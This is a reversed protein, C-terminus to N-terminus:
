FKCNIIYLHYKARNHILLSTIRSNPLESSNEDIFIDADDRCLALYGTNYMQILRSFIIM